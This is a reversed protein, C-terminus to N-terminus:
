IHSYEEIGNSTEAHQAVPYPQTPADLATSYFRQTPYAFRIDSCRAFERLIDEWIAQSTGRRRRPETLHRITLLIGYEKISTYVIPTLKSYFILYKQGAEKVGQEAESCLHSTHRMAIDQLLVKAHEWNSEFTIMVPLENWIYHFGQTYNAQPEKFIQGNPVHIVRGTSQDADVWNGIELLTFQFLRMDIVDGSLGGIQIRDGVKFPQRWTIFLWGAMDILMDKLAIAIGASVLGLFTTVTEMGIFWIEWFVLLGVVAIISALVQRLRYRTRVEGVQRQILVLVIKRVGWLVIIAVVSALVKHEIAPILALMDAFLNKQNIFADQFM